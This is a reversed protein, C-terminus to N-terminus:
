KFRMRYWVLVVIALTVVSLAAWEVGPLTSAGFLEIARVPVAVLQM